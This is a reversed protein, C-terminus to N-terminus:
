VGFDLWVSFRESTEVPARLVDAGNKAVNRGESFRAEGGFDGGIERGRSRPPSRGRKKRSYRMKIDDIKLKRRALRAAALSRTSTSAVNLFEGRPVRSANCVTTPELWACWPRLRARRLRAFDGNGRGRMVPHPPTPSLLVTIALVLPTLARRRHPFFPPSCSKEHVNVVARRSLSGSSHCMTRHPYVCNGLAGKGPTLLNKGVKTPPVTPPPSVPRWPEACM